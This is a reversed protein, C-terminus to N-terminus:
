ARSRLLATKVGAVAAPCHQVGAVAAPRHYARSRSAELAVRRLQASAVAVHVAVMHTRSQSPTAHPAQHAATRSSRLQTVAAPVTLQQRTHRARYATSDTIDLALIRQQDTPPGLSLSLAFRGSGVLLGRGVALSGFVRAARARRRDRGGRAPPPAAGRVARRRSVRRVHFAVGRAGGTGHRALPVLTSYLTPCISTTLLRPDPTAACPPARAAGPAPPPYRCSYLCRRSPPACGMKPPHM